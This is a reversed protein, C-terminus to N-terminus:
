RQGRQPDLFYEVVQECNRSWCPGQGARRCHCVGTAMACLYCLRCVLHEFAGDEIFVIDDDVRVYINNAGSQLVENWCWLFKPMTPLHAPPYVASIETPHRAIMDRAYQLSAAHETNACLVVHHVLGGNRRLNRVLYPFLVRVYRLRGYWVLAVVSANRRQAERLVRAQVELVSGSSGPLRARLGDSQQGLCKHFRRLKEARSLAKWQSASLRADAPDSGPSLTAVTAAANGLSHPKMAETTTYWTGVTGSAGQSDSAGRAEPSAGREVAAPAQIATSATSRGPPPVSSANAWATGGIQAPRTASRPRTSRTFLFRGGRSTDVDVFALGRQDPRLGFPGRHMRFLHASLGLLAIVLLLLSRRCEM